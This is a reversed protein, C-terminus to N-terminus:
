LLVTFLVEILKLVDFRYQRLYSLSSYGTGFDDMSLKIGLRNIDLLAEKIHSQEAMLVVETTELEFNEFNIDLDNITKKVLYAFSQQQFLLIMRSGIPTRQLLLRM